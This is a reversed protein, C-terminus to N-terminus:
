MEPLIIEVDIGYTEEKEGVRNMESLKPLYFRPRPLSPNLGRVADYGELVYRATGSGPGCTLAFGSEALLKGVERAAEAFPEAKEASWEGAVFIQRPREAM